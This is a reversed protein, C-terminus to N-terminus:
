GDGAAAQAIDALATSMAALAPEAAAPLGHREALWHPDNYGVFTRGEADQWVLMKLPLDIGITQSAQMLPTGGKPNGFMLVQTPRLELGAGAAAAAHDIRAMVTMGHATVAAVLRDITQEPGSGSPRSLLGQPSM